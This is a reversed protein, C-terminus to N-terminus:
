HIPRVVDSGSDFGADISADSAGGGNGRNGSEGAFKNTLWVFVPLSYTFFLVSAVLKPLM